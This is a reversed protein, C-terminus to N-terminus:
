ISSKGLSVPAELAVLDHFIPRFGIIRTNESTPHVRNTLLISFLGTEPDCWISTGTYGTHGFSKPGFRHGASSGEPSKTDWGLGRSSKADQKRIFTNRLEPDFLKPKDAIFNTMYRGLDGITSFLGAHGAVGDLVTATPDHVEGQIFEPDRGFMEAVGEQGYRVLRLNKRWEETKETPACSKRVVDSTFTPQALRFYGTHKMGLPEFVRKRLFTDLSMGSLRHIAEAMLIMSLDSYISKSGTEYTLKEAYIAKLVDDARTYTKHYPRFAILGSDHVLLNRFTVKEKGNVGFEPIVSAVPKEIDLKGDQVMLLTASTTAIVKSVSALDWVTDFSMPPSDPDYRHNGVAGSVFRGEKGVGYVAGPFIGEHIAQLLLDDLPKM